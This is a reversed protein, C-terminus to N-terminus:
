DTWHVDAEIIVDGGCPAVSVLRWSAWPAVAHEVWPVGAGGLARPAVVLRVADAARERWLAAHVAPGGEVLLSQVGMPVLLRLADTLGAGATV